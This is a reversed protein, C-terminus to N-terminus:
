LNFKSNSILILMKAHVSPLCSVIQGVQDTLLNRQDLTPEFQDLNISDLASTNKIEVGTYFAKRYYDYHLNLDPINKQYLQELALYLDKTSFDKDSIIKGYFISHKDM